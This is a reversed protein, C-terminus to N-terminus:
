WKFTYVIDINLGNIGGFFIKSLEIPRTIVQRLEEARDSLLAESSIIAPLVFYLNQM